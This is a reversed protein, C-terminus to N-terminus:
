ADLNENVLSRGTVELFIEELTPEVSHLSVLGKESAVDIIKKLGEITKEFDLKEENNTQLVLKNRAYAIKLREPNGLERIKGENLFAVRNCLKDAEEMNHTTLFITTGKKNLDLIMQHVKLTTVPDLASTPEDLFLMTPEHIIACALIVRQRMGKSLKSYKTKKDKGLGIDSIIQNVREKGVKRLQAFFMVNEEVSLREYASSNDSLIGIKNFMERNVEKVPLDFLEIEGSDAVLQKTLLKLTTTKGAGSPGLFGFIENKEVHFTLNDLVKKSGFSISVNQMKIM